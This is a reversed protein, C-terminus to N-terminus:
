EVHSWTKRSAILSITAVAAGLERAVSSRSRGSAILQRIRRIDAETFRAMPNREGPHSAGRSRGKAHRDANNDRTTGDFLHDPRVCAPNDCKHLACSRPWRGHEVFWSIRHALLDRPGVRLKGYGGDKYGTWLWCRGLEPRVLPGTKSVYSWFRDVDRPSLESVHKMGDEGRSMHELSM